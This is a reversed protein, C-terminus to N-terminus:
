GASLAFTTPAKSHASPIRQGSLLMARPDRGFALRRAWSSPFDRLDQDGLYTPPKIKWGAQCLNEYIQRTGTDLPWGAEALAGGNLRIELKAENKALRELGAMLAPNGELLSKLLSGWPFNTTIRSAQKNLAAPLAQASAILYLANAPANRSTKRLNERCADIGICFWDPHKRAIQHVFRGDGTGIDILCHPYPAIHAHLEFANISLPKKGWIREM